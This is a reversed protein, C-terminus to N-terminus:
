RRLSFGIDPPIVPGGQEQFIYIRHGPGGPQPLRSDSSTFYPCSDRPVWVWSYNRQRPGAAITFPLGTREDSLAGWMLLGAVTQCYYFDPRLDRRTSSVLVSQGVSGLDYCLKSKSKSSSCDFLPTLTPPPTKNRPFIFVPVQGGPQPVSSDSVTFHPWSVQPVRVQSYICQRLGAPIAFWLGM